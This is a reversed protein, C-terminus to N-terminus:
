PPWGASTKAARADMRIGYSTAEYGPFADALAKSLDEAAWAVARCYEDHSCVGKDMLVKSLATLEARQILLKEFLDRYGAVPGNDKPQTGLIRGAFVTRWKALVNLSAVMREYAKM